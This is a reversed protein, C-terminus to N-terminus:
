IKELESCIRGEWGDKFDTFIFKFNFRDQYFKIYSGTTLDRSGAFNFPQIVIVPMIENDSYLSPIMKAIDMLAKQVRHQKSRSETKANHSSIAIAFKRRRPSILQLDYERGKPVYGVSFNRELAHSILSKALVETHYLFDEPKLGIDGWEDLDINVKVQMTNSGFESGLSLEDLVGSPVLRNLVAQLWIHKLNGIHASLTVGGKKTRKMTLIWGDAKDFSIDVQRDNVGLKSAKKGFRGTAIRLVVRKEVTKYKSINLGDRWRYEM